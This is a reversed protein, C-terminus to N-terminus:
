RQSNQFTANKLKLFQKQIKKDESESLALLGSASTAIEINALDNLQSMQWIMLDQSNSLEVLLGRPRQVTLTKMWKVAEDGGYYRGVIAQAQEQPSIPNGKADKIDERVTTYAQIYSLAYNPMAKLATQQNQAYLYAQGIATQGSSHPITQPAQGMINERVLDKAIDTTTGARSPAFLTGANTDANAHNSVAKCRGQEVDSENCFHENHVSQRIKMSDVRNALKGGVNSTMRESNEAYSNQSQELKIMTSSDKAVTCVKYGQGTALGYDAQIERVEKQTAIANKVAIEKERAKMDASIITDVNALKQQAEVTASVNISNAMDLLAKNANKVTNLASQNIQQALQTTNNNIDNNVQGRDYVLASFAQPSIALISM